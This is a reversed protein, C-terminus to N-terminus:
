PTSQLVSEPLKRSLASNRFFTQLTPKQLTKKTNPMKHRDNKLGGNVLYLPLLRGHCYHLNLHIFRFLGLVQGQKLSYIAITFALNILSEIGSKMQTTIQIYVIENILGGCSQQM